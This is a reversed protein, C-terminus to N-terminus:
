GRKRVVSGLRARHRVDVRVRVRVRVRVVSGLRARHRVNVLSLLRLKTVWTRVEINM